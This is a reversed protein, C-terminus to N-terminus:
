KEDEIKKAVDRIRTSIELRDQASVPYEHGLNAMILAVGLVREPELGHAINIEGLLKESQECLYYAHEDDIVFLECWSTRVLFMPKCNPSEYNETILGDSDVGVLVGSSFVRKRQSRLADRRKKMYEAVTPVVNIDEESMHKSYLFPPTLV